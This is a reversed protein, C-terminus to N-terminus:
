QKSWCAPPPVRYDPTHVFEVQYGDLRIRVVVPGIDPYTQQSIQMAKVDWPIGLRDHYGHLIAEAQDAWTM